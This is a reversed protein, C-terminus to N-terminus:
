IKKIIEKEESINSINIEEESNLENFEETKPKFL